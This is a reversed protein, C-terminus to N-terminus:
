GNAGVSWAARREWYYKNGGAIDSTWTSLFFIKLGAGSSFAIAAAAASTEDFKKGVGLLRKWIDVM